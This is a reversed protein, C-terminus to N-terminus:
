KIMLILNDVSGSTASCTTYPQVINKLAASTYVNMKHKVNPIVRYNRMIDDSRFVPEYFIENLQAGGYTAAISNIAVNAM